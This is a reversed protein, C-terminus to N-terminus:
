RSATACAAHFDLIAGIVQPEVDDWSATVKREVGYMRVIDSTDCDLYYDFTSPAQVNAVGPVHALRLQLRTLNDFGHSPPVKALASEPIAFHKTLSM